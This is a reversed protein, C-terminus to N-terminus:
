SRSCNQIAQAAKWLKEPADEPALMSGLSGKQLDPDGHFDSGGTIILGKRQALETFYKKQNNNHSPHFAEIGRLGTDILSDILSADKLFGPHALVPVGGNKLIKQIVLGADLPERAVYGPKGPNLYFNFAERPSSVYGMKALARAMHPRGASTQSTLFPKVDSIQILVGAENLQRIMKELRALRAQSCQNLFSLFEPDEYQIYYALIHVERGRCHCSIEIGPIWQIQAEEALKRIQPLASVTDHDTVSLVDIKKKTALQILEEPTLKGDSATTHTHLDVKMLYEDFVSV